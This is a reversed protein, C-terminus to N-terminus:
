LFDLVSFTFHSFLFPVVGCVTYCNLMATGQRVSGHNASASEAFDIATFIVHHFPCRRYCEAIPIVSKAALGGMMM